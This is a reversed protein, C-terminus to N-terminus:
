CTWCRKLRKGSGSAANGANHPRFVVTRGTAWKSEWFQIPRGGRKQRAIVAPWAIHLNEHRGIFLRARERVRLDLL